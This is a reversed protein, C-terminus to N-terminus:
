LEGGIAAVGNRRQFLLEKLMRISSVFDGVNVATGNTYDLAAADARGDTNDFRFTMRHNDGTIGTLRCRTLLFSALYLDTTAVTANSVKGTTNM